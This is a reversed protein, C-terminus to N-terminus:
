KYKKNKMIKEILKMSKNVCGIYNMLLALLKNHEIMTHKTNINKEHRETYFKKLKVEDALM